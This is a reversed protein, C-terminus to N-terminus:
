GMLIKCLCFKTVKGNFRKQDGDRKELAEKKGTSAGSPAAARGFVGSDLYVDVEITPNGRSDLIQRAFISKIHAM